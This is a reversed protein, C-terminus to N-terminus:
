MAVPGISPAARSLSFLPMGSVLASVVQPALVRAVPEDGKRQVLKGRLFRAVLISDGFQSEDRRRQRRYANAGSHTDQRWVTADLGKQCSAVNNFISRVIRRTAARTNGTRSKKILM